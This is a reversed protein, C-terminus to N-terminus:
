LDLGTIEKIQAKSLGNKLLESAIALKEKNHKAEQEQLENRHEAVQRQIKNQYQLIEGQYQQIEGQYQQIEGQHKAEQQKLENQFKQQEQERLEEQRSREELIATQLVAYNDRYTKLSAQYTFYEDKTFKSIEAVRFLKEFVKNKLRDPLGQLKSINKLVYLWKDTSGDLEELKKTFKPMEAYVFTLKDYFVKNNELEVLKVHHVVEDTSKNEPLVFDMIAVIYVASLRYDWDDGRQAQNIIPYTAYLVMRDKFYTQKNKQMEVIFKDGKVSQCYIDVVSKRDEATPALQENPSYVIDEIPDDGRNLISNLFDILLDKNYEQGFIRKFGFDTFPNIYKEYREQEM